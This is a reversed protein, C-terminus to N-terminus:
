EEGVKYIEVLEVPVPVVRRPEITRQALEVPVQRRQRGEQSLVVQQEDSGIVAVVRRGRRGVVGALANRQEHRPWTDARAVEAAAVREGVESGRNRLPETDRKAPTTRREQRDQDAFSPAPRHARAELPRRRRAPAPTRETSATGPPPPAGSM